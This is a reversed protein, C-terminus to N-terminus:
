HHYAGIARTTHLNLHEIIKRVQLVDVTADWKNTKSHHNKEIDDKIKEVGKGTFRLQKGDCKLSFRFM